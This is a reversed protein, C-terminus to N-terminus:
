NPFPDAVGTTIEVLRSFAQELGRAKKENGINAVINKTGKFKM